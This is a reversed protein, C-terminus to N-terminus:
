RNCLIARHVLHHRLQQRSTMIIALVHLETLITFRCYVAACDSKRAGPPLSPVLIHAVFQPTQMKNKHAADFLPHHPILHHPSLFSTSHTRIGTETAGPRPSVRLTLPPHPTNKVHSTSTCTILFAPLHGRTTVPETMHRVTPMCTSLSYLLVCRYPTKMM